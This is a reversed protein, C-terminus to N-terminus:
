RRYGAKQLLATFRPQPRLEDLTPDNLLGTITDKQTVAEDLEDLAPGYERLGVHIQAIGIRVAYGKKEWEELEALCKRANAEDGSRAYIFGVVDLFTPANTVGARVKLIEALAEQYNGKRELLSAHAVSFWVFDPFQELDRNCEELGLDYQRKCGMWTLINLKIIPSLRDLSEALRLEAISEDMRDAERLHVGYWHHATAYNPNLRLAQM